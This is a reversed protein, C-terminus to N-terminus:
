SNFGIECYKAKFFFTILPNHYIISLPAYTTLCTAKISINKKSNILTSKFNDFDTNLKSNRSFSIIICKLIKKTIYTYCTM